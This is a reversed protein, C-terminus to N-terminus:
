SVQVIREERRFFEELEDVFFSIFKIRENFFSSRGFQPLYNQSRGPFGKTVVAALCSTVLGAGFPAIKPALLRL